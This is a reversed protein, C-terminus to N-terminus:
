QNLSPTRLRFGDRGLPHTAVLPFSAGRVVRGFGLRGRLRDLASDLRRWRDAHSSAHDDVREDEGEPPDSFLQGQWGPNPSLHLLTIGVRKVLARRRPLGRFLGLAHRWLADTSDSPAGLARRASVSCPAESPDARHPGHPRTDVYRVRVEVSQARCDHARLRSSAREVVYSLMAEVIATRGEEPEFTSDRRIARPPRVRLSGDVAEVWSEEVPDPDVGRAREHIVLGPRGFSAFLVERSVLRLQGVTRIAFHELQRGISHGVGPLQEVPVHTLFAAECGPLVEAVGGPKALKGAMRAMTRNTAVGVTVPLGVEDRIAARMRVATEFADGHLLATGSLDVFFDDISAVEVRPTYRRLLMATRERLRNAAQSDGRRFVADPCRRAAEALFLGPRVGRARADYSCSMVLNRESPMGGVIVPRGRLEPHMAQEVSALFADVDLHLVRRTGPPLRRDRRSPFSSGSTEAGTTRAGEHAGEHPPTPHLRTEPTPAARSSM